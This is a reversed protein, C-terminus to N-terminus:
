SKFCSSLETWTRKTARLIITGLVEDHAVDIKLDLQKILDGLVAARKTSPLISVEPRAAPVDLLELLAAVKKHVEEPALVIIQNVREDVSFRGAPSVVRMLLQFAGKADAFRLAYVRVEETLDKLDLDQRDQVQQLLRNRIAQQAAPQRASNQVATGAEEKPQEAATKPPTKPATKAPEERAAIPFSVMMGLLGLFLRRCTYNKTV